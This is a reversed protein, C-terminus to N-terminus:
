LAFQRKSVMIRKLSGIRLGDVVSLKFFVDVDTRRKIKVVFNQWDYGSRRNKSINFDVLEVLLGRLESDGFSDLATTNICSSYM